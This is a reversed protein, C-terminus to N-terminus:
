SPLSIRFELDTGQVELPFSGLGRGRGAGSGLTRWPCLCPLCVATEGRQRAAASPSPLSPLPPGEPIWRGVSPLCALQM